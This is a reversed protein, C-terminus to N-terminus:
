NPKVFKAISKINEAFLSLTQKKKRPFFFQKGGYSSKCNCGQVERGNVQGREGLHGRRQACL